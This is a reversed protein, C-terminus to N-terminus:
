TQDKSGASRSRRRPKSRLRAEASAHRRSPSEKPIAQFLSIGAGLQDPLTRNIIRVLSATLLIAETTKGRLVDADARVSRGRYDGRLAHPLAAEIIQNHLSLIKRLDDLSKLLPRKFRSFPNAPQHMILQRRSPSEKPIAQFLSIGAELQDPLTRNIIRVLSATLLIAETTKGRLVDADARVSRGRYDGRLAHPLAAEIIQNHLSLIKRLDDLSKLLPRKFRSFPNAPQHM